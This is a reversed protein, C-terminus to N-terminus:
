EVLALNRFTADIGDRLGGAGSRALVLLGQFSMLLAKAAADPDADADLQGVAVAREIQRRFAREISAFGRDVASRVAETAAEDHGSTTTLLCGRLQREGPHRRLVSTFFRRLGDLPDDADDLLRAIRGGVESEVYRDLCRVLLQEKSHFRRYISPARLELAVELDRISVADVGNKWFVEIARDM